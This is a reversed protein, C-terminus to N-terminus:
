GLVDASVFFALALDLVIEPEEGFAAGGWGREEVGEAGAAVAGDGEAADDLDGRVAFFPPTEELGEEGGVAVGDDGVVEGGCPVDGLAGGTGGFGEEM